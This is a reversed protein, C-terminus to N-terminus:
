AIFRLYFTIWEIWNVLFLNEVGFIFVCLFHFNVNKSNKACNQRRKRLVISNANSCIRCMNYTCSRFHSDCEIESLSMLKIWDFEWKQDVIQWQCKGNWTRNFWWLVAKKDRGFFISCPLQQLLKMWNNIFSSFRTAYFCLNVKM